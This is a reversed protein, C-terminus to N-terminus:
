DLIKVAVNRRGWQEAASESQVYVDIRNGKIAGGVDGAIAVGYGEVWVRSGLPILSPDVAIVKISPNSRLDIGTATIGSGGSCNATYATAEVTFQRSSSSTSQNSSEEERSSASVTRVPAEEQKVATGVAIVRDQKEKVVESKVQKRVVEKGNEKTIEITNKKLGNEGESLVAEKGEELSSDDKRVTEFEVTEDEIRLIK